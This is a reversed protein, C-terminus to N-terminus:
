LVAVGGGGGVCIAETLLLEAHCQVSTASCPM